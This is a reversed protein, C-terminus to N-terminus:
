ARAANTTAVCSHGIEHAQASCAECVRRRPWWFAWAVAVLPGLVFWGALLLFRASAVFAFGFLEMAQAIQLPLAVRSREFAYGESCRVVWGRRRTTAVLKALVWLGARDFAISVFLM